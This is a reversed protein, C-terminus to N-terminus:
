DHHNSREKIWTTLTELAVALKVRSDIDEKNRDLFVKGLYGAVIWGLGLPGYLKLFEGLSPDM